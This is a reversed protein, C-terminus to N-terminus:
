FLETYVAIIAQVDRVKYHDMKCYFLNCNQKSAMLFERIFPYIVQM